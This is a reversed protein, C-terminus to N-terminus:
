TSCYKKTGTDYRSGWEVVATTRQHLEDPTPKYESPDRVPENIYRKPNNRNYDTIEVTDAQLINIAIFDHVDSTVLEVRMAFKRIRKNKFDRLSQNILKSAESEYDDGSKGFFGEVRLMSQFGKPYYVRKRTNLRDEIIGTQVYELRITGDARSDTYNGLCYQFDLDPDPTGFITTRQIKIQYTGEGHATLVTRWDVFYSIYDRNKEDSFYGLPYFTGFTDDNLAVDVFTSDSPKTLFLEVATVSKEYGRHFRTKDNKLPDTSSTSALLTLEYCCQTDPQAFVDTIITDNIPEQLLTFVRTQVDGRNM